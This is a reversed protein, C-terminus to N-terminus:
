PSPRRAPGVPTLHVGTMAAVHSAYPGNPYRELFPYARSRAAGIRDLDILAQIAVARREEAFPSEGFRREGEDSLVLALTPDSKACLRLKDMLSPEDMPARPNTTASQNNGAACGAAALVFLLRAMGGFDAASSTSRIMTATGM